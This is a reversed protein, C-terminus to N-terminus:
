VLFDPSQIQVLGSKENRNNDGVGGNGHHPLPQIVVIEAQDVGTQVGNAKGTDGPQGAAGPGHGRDDNHADPFAQAKVRHDQQRADLANGRRDILRRINIPGVHHLLEEADGQGHELGCDHKDHNDAHDVGELREVM